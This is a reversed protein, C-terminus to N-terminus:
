RKQQESKNVEDVMHNRIALQLKRIIFGLSYGSVILFLSIYKGDIDRRIEDVTLLVLFVFVVLFIKSKYWNKYLLGFLFNVGFTFVILVGTLFALTGGWGGPYFKSYLRIVPEGLFFAIVFVLFLLGLNKLFQRM